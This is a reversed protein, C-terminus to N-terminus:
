DALVVEKAERMSRYRKGNPDEYAHYEKGNSRQLTRKKWGAPLAFPDPLAPFSDPLPAPPPVDAAAPKKSVRKQKPLEEKFVAEVVDNTIGPLEQPPEDEFIALAIGRPGPIVGLAEVVGAAGKDKHAKGSAADYWPVAIAIGGEEISICDDDEVDAEIFLYSGGSVFEACANVVDGSGAEKFVCCKQFVDKNKQCAQVLDQVSSTPKCSVTITTKFDLSSIFFKVKDGAVTATTKLMTQPGASAPTTKPMHKQVPPAEDCGEKRDDTQEEYDNFIAKQWAVMRPKTSRQWNCKTKHLKTLAERAAKADHQAKRELVKGKLGHDEHVATTAATLHSIHMTLSPCLNYMGRFFKQHESDHELNVDNPFVSKSTKVAMANPSTKGFHDVFLAVLEKRFTEMTKDDRENASKM